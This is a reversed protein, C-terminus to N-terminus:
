YTCDYGKKGSGSASLVDAKQIVAAPSLKEDSIFLSAQIVEEVRKVPIVQIKGKSFTEQWNEAPIL